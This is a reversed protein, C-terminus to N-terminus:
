WVWLYRCILQKWRRCKLRPENPQVGVVDAKWKMNGGLFKQTTAAPRFMNVSATLASFVTGGRGAFPQHGAEM